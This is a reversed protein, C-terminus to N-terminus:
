TDDAILHELVVLSLGTALWGWGHALHFAAFDIAAAGLVTLPIETLRIVSARHPTIVRDAASKLAARFRGRSPAAPVPRLLAVM